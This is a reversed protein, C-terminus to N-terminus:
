RGVATLMAELFVAGGCQTCRPLGRLVRQRAEEVTLTFDGQVRGCCLCVASYTNRLPVVAAPRDPEAFRQQLRANAVGCQRSCFRNSYATNFSQSCNPCQRTYVRRTTM